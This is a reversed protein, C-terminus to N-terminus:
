CLCRAPQVCRHAWTGVTTSSTSAEESSNIRQKSSSFRSDEDFAAGVGGSGGLDGDSIARAGGFETSGTSFPTSAIPTPLSISPKDFSTVPKHECPAVNSIGQMTSLSPVRPTTNSPAVQQLVDSLQQQPSQHWVPTQSGSDPLSHHAFTYPRRKCYASQLVAPSSGDPRAPPEQQTTLWSSWTM